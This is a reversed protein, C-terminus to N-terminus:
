LYQIATNGVWGPFATNLTYMFCAYAVRSLKEFSVKFLEEMSKRNLGICQYPSLSVSLWLEYVVIRFILKSMSHDAVIKPHWSTFQGSLCGHASLICDDSPIINDIHFYDRSGRRRCCYVLYVFTVSIGRLDAWFSIIFTLDFYIWDM